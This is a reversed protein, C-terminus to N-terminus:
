VKVVFCFQQMLWMVIRVGMVCKFIIAEEKDKFEVVWSTSRKARKV